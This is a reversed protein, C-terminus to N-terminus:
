AQALQLALLALEDNLVPRVQRIATNERSPCVRNSLLVVVLDQKPDCWFSTGTFGLHGFSEGSLVSGVSSSSASKGDFGVRLSSDARKSLLLQASEATLFRSRGSHIDLMVKGFALVGNATGFLGAHGSCGMGNLAWANDDHVQARVLGGRYSVLETPAIRSIPVQEDRMQRASWVDWVGTQNLEQRVWHELTCGTANQLAEGVLIYGLDSYVAPACGLNAACAQPDAVGGVQTGPQLFHVLPELAQARNFRLGDKLAGCLEVHPILGSRHALLSVLATNELSSDVCWSLWQSIRDRFSLLGQDAARAFALAVMPKTLSALDYVTDASVNHREFRDYRGAYGSHEHWCGDRYYAVAAVAGPAVSPQVVLTHLLRCIHENHIAKM